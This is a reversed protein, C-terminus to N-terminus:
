DIYKLLNMHAETNKTFYYQNKPDTAPTLGLVGAEKLKFIFSNLEEQLKDPNNQKLFDGYGVECDGACIHPNKLNLREICFEKLKDMDTKVEVMFNEDKVEPIEDLGSM